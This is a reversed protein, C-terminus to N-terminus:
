PKQRSMAGAWGALFPLIKQDIMARGDAGHVKKDHGLGGKTQQIDQHNEAMVSSFNNMEIDGIM